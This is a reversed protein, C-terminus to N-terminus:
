IKTLEFIGCGYHCGCDEAIQDPGLQTQSFLKGRDDVYSFSDIKYRQELLQVLYKLSFVRHANFEVRQQGIPVSFYFKGGSRLMKYINDLGKLHGNADIKDGYRGLGFHEIAHLSSVSDCYDHLDFDDSMFDARRFKLNPVDSEIDRIDFCEIKRFCAVHAVFGDVRSGVDAHKDPKNQLIRRAVLLDQHFYHGCAQGAQACREHLLPYLRGIRFPTGLRDTQRKFQYYDKVFGPVAKISRGLTILNVGFRSILEHVQKLGATARSTRGHEQATGTEM